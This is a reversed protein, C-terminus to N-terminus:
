PPRPVSSSSNNPDHQDEISSFTNFQEKKRRYKSFVDEIHQLEAGLFLLFWLKEKIWENSLDKQQINFLKPFDKVVPDVDHPFITQRWLRFPYTIRNFFGTVLTNDITPMKHRIDDVDDSSMMNDEVNVPIDLWCELIMYIATKLDDTKEVFRLNRRLRLREREPEVRASALEVEVRESDTTNM